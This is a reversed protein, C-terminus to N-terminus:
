IFPLPKSVLKTGADAAPPNLRLREEQVKVWAEAASTCTCINCVLWDTIYPLADDYQQLKRMASLLVELKGAVNQFLRM